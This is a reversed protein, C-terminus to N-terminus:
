KSVEDLTVKVKSTSDACPFLEFTRKKVGVNRWVSPGESLTDIIEAMDTDENTSNPVMEDVDICLGDMTLSQVQGKRKRM